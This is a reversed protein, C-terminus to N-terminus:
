DLVYQVNSSSLGVARAHLEVEGSAYMLADGELADNIRPGLGLTQIRASSSAIEKSMMVGKASEILPRVEITGPRIGRLRELRSIAADLKEIQEASETRPHYITGVGPQIVADLDAEWSALSIRVDVPGPGDPM